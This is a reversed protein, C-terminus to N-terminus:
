MQGTGPPTRPPPGLTVPHRGLLDHRRCRDIAWPPQWGSRGLSEVQNGPAVSADHRFVRLNGNVAETIRKFDVQFIASISLGIDELM